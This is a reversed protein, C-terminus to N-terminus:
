RDKQQPKEQEKGPQRPKDQPQEKTPKDKTYDHKTEFDDQEQTYLKHAM